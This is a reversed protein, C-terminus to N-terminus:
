SRSLGTRLTKSGGISEVSASSVSIYFDKPGSQTSTDRGLNWPKKLVTPPALVTWALGLNVGLFLLSNVPRDNRKGLIMVVHWNVTVQRCVSLVVGELEKWKGTEWM